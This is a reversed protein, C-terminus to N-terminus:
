RPYRKLRKLSKELYKIRDSEQSEWYDWLNNKPNVILDLCRNLNVFFKQWGITMHYRSIGNYAKTAIVIENLDTKTLRHAPHLQDALEWCIATETNLKFQRRSRCGCQRPCNYVRKCDPAHCSALLVLRLNNISDQQKKTM